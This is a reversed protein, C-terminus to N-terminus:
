RGLRARHARVWPSTPEAAPETTGLSTELARRHSRRQTLAAIAAVVHEDLPPPAGLVDALSEDLFRTDHRDEVFTEHALVRRLFDLNTAIGTVRYESLARLTRQLAHRRDTGHVILKAILPDYDPPIVQGSRAGEDNRIGPGAPLRLQDIRGPSPLFNRAPDEAYVRCEIAHGRRPPPATFPLEEGQAVRVMLEVLDLGTCLETVPHEVQLRTNMELFYLEGSPALLFEMTGASFYGIARAGRVAIDGIEAAQEPSLPLCPTEEVIKQHRRQLSCDREYLHVVNGQQDGILQVEVHRARELLKELYVTDDGFAAKAESRARQFAEPLEAESAVRRMGKGGGGASPKLLVPYGIRAASHRAEDLDKAPGGPMVPVGAEQMAQRAEVKLAMRRMASAPPGIFTIGARACADALEPSESLFGYGPHLATAGSRRAADLLRDIDLYSQAAPAPGIEVAEDASAVHLSGRDAESYVAVSPLNMDRLTRAIRVAIEGRNAILVKGLKAM